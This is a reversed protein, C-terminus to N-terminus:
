RCGAKLGEEIRLRVLQALSAKERLSLGTTPIPPFIRLRVLGPRVYLKGKPMVKRTGCIAVAVVPKGSKIALVFGGTKFPLLSGDPSRTGEPFIVVSFGAKVIEAARLLSEYGKRPNERDVPIYGIARLAWGFFPIRFLSKKALWRIQYPLAVALVPIDFQSQHNAAFIYSEDKKLHELGRVEVKVGTIWLICRLWFRGIEHTLLGRRDFLSLLLIVIAFPPVTILIFLYLVLNRTIVELTKM